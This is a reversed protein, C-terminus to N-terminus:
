RFSKYNMGLVGFIRRSVVKVKDYGYELVASAIIIVIMPVIISVIQTTQMKNIIIYGINQHILFLMYSINGVAVIPTFELLTVKNNVCLLVLVVCIILVLVYEYGSTFYYYLGCIVLTTINVVNINNLLMGVIIIPTNTDFVFGQLITAVANIHENVLVGSSGTVFRVVRLIAVCVVWILYIWNKKYESVSYIAACLVTATLVPKLFWHAGDVYPTGIFANIFPICLLYETFTVTRNQLEFFRTIIFIMTISIFYRPYLSDFRRRLLEGGGHYTTNNLYYGSILFFNAVGFSCLFDFYSYGLFRSYHFLMIFLISIGRLGQVQKNKQTM